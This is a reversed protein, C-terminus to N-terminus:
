MEFTGAYAHQATGETAFSFEEGAPGTLLLGLCSPLAAFDTSIVPL